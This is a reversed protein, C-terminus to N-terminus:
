ITTPSVGPTTLWPELLYTINIKDLLQLKYFPSMASFIKLVTFIHKEPINNYLLMTQACYFMFDIGKTSYLERKLASCMVSVCFMHQWMVVNGNKIFIKFMKLISYLLEVLFHILSDRIIIKFSRFM